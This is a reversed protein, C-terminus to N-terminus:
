HMGAKSLFSELESTLYADLLVQAHAHVLDLGEVDRETILALKVDRDILTGLDCLREDIRAALASRALGPSISLAVDFASLPAPFSRQAGDPLTVVPM